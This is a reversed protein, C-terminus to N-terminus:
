AGDEVAEDMKAGCVDCYDARYEGWAHEEGCNSCVCVEGDENWHAHIVKAYDNRHDFQPCLEEVCEDDMEEDFSKEWDKPQYFHKHAEYHICDKCKM